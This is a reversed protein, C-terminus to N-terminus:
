NSILGNQKYYTLYTNKIFNSLSEIKECRPAIINNVDLKLSLEQKCKKICNCYHMFFESLFHGRIINRFKDGTSIFAEISAIETIDCKSLDVNAKSYIYHLKDEPKKYVININSPDVNSNSIDVFGKISITNLPTQIGNKKWYIIHSMVNKLQNEFENKDQIFKEVIEDIVNLSDDQYGLVERLLRRLLNETILSNEISYGDTVYCNERECLDKGDEIYDSLDRDRFFCIRHKSYKTWDILNYTDRVNYKGGCSILHVNSNSPLENCICSSYLSLDEKAEVFGYVIKVQDKRYDNLFKTYAVTRGDRASRLEEVQQEM